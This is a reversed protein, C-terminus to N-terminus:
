KIVALKESYVLKDKRLSVIYQGAPFTSVDLYEDDFKKNVVVRGLEDYVLLIAGNIDVFEARDGLAVKVTKSAPNPYLALSGKIIRSVDYSPYFYLRENEDKSKDQAQQALVECSLISLVSITTIIFHKKM